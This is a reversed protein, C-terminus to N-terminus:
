PVAPNSEVKAPPDEKAPPDLETPDLGVPVYDETLLKPDANARRRIVLERERAQGEITLTWRFFGAASLTKLEDTLERNFEKQSSRSGCRHHINALSFRLEQKTELTRDYLRCLRYLFRYLPKKLRMYDDDYTLISPAGVTVIGQYMWNPIGLRAKILDGTSSKEVIDWDTILPFSGYRRRQPNIAASIYVRTNALRNLQEQFGTRQKGGKERQAFLELDKATLLIYRPPPEPPRATQDRSVVKQWTEVQTRWKNANSALVSQMLLILDYDTHSPLGYEKDARVRINMGKINEYILETRDDGRRNANGYDALKKQALDAFSRYASL